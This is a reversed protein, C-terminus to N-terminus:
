LVPCLHAPRVCMADSQEQGMCAPYSSYAQPSTVKVPFTTRSLVEASFSFFLDQLSGFSSYLLFDAKQCRFAEEYGAKHLPERCYTVQM